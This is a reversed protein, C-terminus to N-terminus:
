AAGGETERRKSLFLGLLFDVNSLCDSRSQQECLADTIASELWAPCAENSMVAAVHAALEEAQNRVPQNSKEQKTSQRASVKRVAM